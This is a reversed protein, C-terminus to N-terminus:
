SNRQECVNWPKRERSTGANPSVAEEWPKLARKRVLGRRIREARVRRLATTFLRARGARNVAASTRAAAARAAAASWTCAAACILSVSGLSNM